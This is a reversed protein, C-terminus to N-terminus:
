RTDGSGHIVGRKHRDALKDMNCSMVESLRLGLADAMLAVYWQLDGIEKKIKDRDAQTIFGGSDRLLKKINNQVEGAEGLGLGAYVLNAIEKDPICKYVNDLSRTKMAAVQYEDATLGAVEARKRAALCRSDDVLVTPEIALAVFSVSKRLDDLDGKNNIHYQCSILNGEMESPHTDTDGFGRDVRVLVGGRETIEEAENAFRVDDIIVVNALGDVFIQEARSMAKGVWTNDSVKRGFGTGLEQAAFRPVVGEENPINKYDQDTRMREPDFGYLDCLIARIPDAFSVRTAAPWRRLLIECATSKGSNKKGVLGIILRKASIDL